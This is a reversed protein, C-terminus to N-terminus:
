HGSFDFAGVVLMSMLADGMEKRAQALAASRDVATAEYIAWCGECRFEATDIVSAHVGLLDVSRDDPGFYVDAPISIRAIFISGGCECVITPGAASRGRGRVTRGQPQAEM